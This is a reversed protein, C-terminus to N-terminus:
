LTEPEDSYEEVVNTQTVGVRMVLRGLISAVMFLSTSGWLDGQKNALLVFYVVLAILSTVAPRDSTSNKAASFLALGNRFLAILFWVLLLLGPLGLEFAFDAVVVHSYAEGGSLANFSFYGLGLVMLEPRSSWEGYLLQVNGWRQMFSSQGYLMEDSSFRKAAVGELLFGAAFMAIVIITGAGLAAIVASRASGFPAAIPFFFAATAVALFVQGRAGSQIAIVLGAIVATVRIVGILASTERERLLMGCLLLIGGLEGLALPNSSMKGGEVIGLRGWQATFNPNALILIAVVAGLVMLSWLAKRLDAISTILFSGILVRLFYYPWSALMMDLGGSRDQSWLLSITAWILTISICVLTGNLLGFFPRWGRLLTVFGSGLGVIGVLYNITQNGFAGTRLSPAGAQLLQEIPFVLVIMAVAWYPRALGYLCSLAFLGILVWEV